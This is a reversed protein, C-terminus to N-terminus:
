RFNDRIEINSKSIGARPQDAMHRAVLVGDTRNERVTHFCRRNRRTAFRFVRDARMASNDSQCGGRDQNGTRSRKENETAACGDPLQRISKSDQL